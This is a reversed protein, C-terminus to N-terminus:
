VVVDLKGDRAHVASEPKRLFGTGEGLAACLKDIASQFVGEGLEADDHLDNTQRGTGFVIAGVNPSPGGWFRIAVEQCLHEFLATGDHGGQNRNTKMNMQTSLLLYWYLLDAPSKDAAPGSRRALLGGNGRIEYPYRGDAGCHESRITLEQFAEDVIQRVADDGISEAERLLIRTIDLSSVNGDEKRLCEIEAFDAITSKNAVHPKPVTKLDSM